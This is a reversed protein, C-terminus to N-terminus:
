GYTALAEEVGIRPAKLRGDGIDVARNMDLNFIEFAPEHRPDLGTIIMDFTHSPEQAVFWHVNDDESGISSLDGAGLIREDTPRVILSSQDRKLQDYQRLLFRGRLTLHASVMYAGGLKPLSYPAAKL